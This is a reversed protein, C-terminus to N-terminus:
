VGYTSVGYAVGWTDVGWMVVGWGKGYIIYHMVAPEREMERSPSTCLVADGHPTPLGGM